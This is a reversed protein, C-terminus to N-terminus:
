AAVEVRDLLAAAAISLEAKESKGFERRHTLKDVNASQVQTLTMGHAHAIRTLDEALGVTMIFLDRLKDDGAGWNAAVWQEYQENTM